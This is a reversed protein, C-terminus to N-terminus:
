FYLEGEPCFMIRWASSSLAIVFYPKRDYVVDITLPCTKTRIKTSIPKKIKPDKAPDGKRLL